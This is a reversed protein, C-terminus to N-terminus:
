ECESQTNRSLQERRGCIGACRKSCFFRKLRGQVFKMRQTPTLTFEKGCESCTKIIELPYKLSHERQHEGHKRIELNSLENNLYNGDKHHVDEDAALPRGLEQEMLYRPYSITKYTNNEKIVVFLRGKNNVYPGLVIDGGSTSTRQTQRNWWVRMFCNVIM